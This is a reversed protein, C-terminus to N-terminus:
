RPARVAAESRAIGDHAPRFAPELVLAEEYAAIAEPHRGHSALYFGRAVIMTLYAPRVKLGVVGDPEFPITGDFLGRLRLEPKQPPRFSRDATLEFVLGAPVQAYAAGLAKSLEPDPSFSALAIDRTAYAPGSELQKAVFAAIMALYRESIRKNLVLDRQYLPPDQEWATLDELFADVEPQARAMLDPSRLRLYDFYWSRRLLQVDIAAVDLRLGEVERRYLLPAYVQWDGTLLLGRPGISALVNAVYDEAIHDRSRDALAFSGVLGLVPILFLAGAARSRLRSRLVDAGVGAALALAVFAPLYYADKDEAITYVLGFGADAAVLLALCAFLTRDRRWLAVFGAVALALAAPVFPPGFERFVLRLFAQAEQAMSETSPALFAQYQRGTVHWVIRQFTTPNGWNLVPNRAAAVPLYSYVVVLGAISVLGALAFRRSRFFSGGATAYVLAALAPLALALSVHHVGTGLGFLFAAALLWRDSAPERRWRFMLLLVGVLIATNLAYVEAITAYSWLTRSFAFLLGSVVLPVLRTATMAQRLTLVVLGAALAAFLASAANVRVAVSGWPLLTALHALLVYLPTGPPHAVGLNRAAVILEGSDVLTVTPALTRAYVAGAALSVAGACLLARRFPM